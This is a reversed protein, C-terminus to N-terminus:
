SNGRYPAQDEANWLPANRWEDVAILPPVTLWNFSRTESQALHIVFSPPEEGYALRALQQLTAVPTNPRRRLWMAFVPTVGYRPEGHRNVVISTLPPIVLGSRESTRDLLAVLAGLQRGLGIPPCALRYQVALRDSM